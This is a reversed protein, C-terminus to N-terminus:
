HAPVLDVIVVEPPALFRIRPAVGGTFGLGRSVFLTTNEVQYMGMEFTKGYRSNTFIAGWFPLRVQGGHTHGSLYLNVNLDSASYILDPKHYLLLSFDDPQTQSILFSLEEKDQSWEIYNLGVLVFKSSIEPIRVMENQLVHVDIGQLMRQLRQPSEVNGNVAFVGLPAKLKVALDRLAKIAKSDNIYSENILDGTIVIMDPHLGDIYAPLAQERKTSAEVHIDSIQIIRMPNYIGPVEIEIRTETLHFPEICFGYIGLGLLLLNPIIFTWLPLPNISATLKHLLYTLIIWLGFFFIRLISFLILSPIGSGYSIKWSPLSKLWILDIIIFGLLVIFYPLMNPYVNQVTAIIKRM